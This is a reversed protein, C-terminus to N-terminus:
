FAAQLHRDFSCYKVVVFVLKKRTTPYYMYSKQNARKSLNISSSCTHSARRLWQVNIDSRRLFPPHHRPDCLGNDTRWHLCEQQALPSSQEFSISTSPLVDPCKPRPINYNMWNCKSCVHILLLVISGAQHLTWRESVYM